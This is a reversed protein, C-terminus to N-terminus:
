SSRGDADMRFDIRAYGTLELARYIRRAMHQVRDGHRPSSRGRATDIGHKKQYKANWKVRETAIRWHREPMKAFSMEWVPFVQLRANGM